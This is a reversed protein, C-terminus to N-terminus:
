LIAKMYVFCLTLHSQQCILSSFTQERVSLDNQLPTWFSITFYWHLYRLEWFYQLCKYKQKIQSEPGKESTFFPAIRRTINDYFNFGCDQVKKNIKTLVVIIVKALKRCTKVHKSRIELLVTLYFSYISTSIDTKPLNVRWFLKWDSEKSKEWNRTQFKSM